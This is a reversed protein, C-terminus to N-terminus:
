RVSGFLNKRNERTVYWRETKVQGNHIWQKPTISILNKFPELNKSSFFRVLGLVFRKEVKTRGTNAFTQICSTLPRSGSLCLTSTKMSACVNGTRIHTITDTSCGDKKRYEPFPNAAICVNSVSSYM